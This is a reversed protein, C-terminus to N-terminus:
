GFGSDFSRLEASLRLSGWRPSTNLEALYQIVGTECSLFSRGVFGGVDVLCCRLIWGREM